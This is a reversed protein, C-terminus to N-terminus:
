YLPHFGEDLLVLFEPLRHVEQLSVDLPGSALSVKCLGVRPIQLIMPPDQELLQRSRRLLQPALGFLQGSDRFLQPIGGFLKFLFGFLESTYGLLFCTRYIPSHVKYQQVVM